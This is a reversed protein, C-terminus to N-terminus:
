KMIANQIATLSVSAAMDAESKLISVDHSSEWKQWDKQGQEVGKIMLSELDGELYVAKPQISEIKKEFKSHHDSPEHSVCHPAMFTDTIYHSSIGFCESASVYDSNNYKSKGDELWKTAKKYSPPYHHNVMDRFKEDPDDSTEILTEKDLNHRIESNLAEYVAMIVNAHGFRTMMEPQDPLDLKLEIMSIVGM